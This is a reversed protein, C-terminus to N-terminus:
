RRVLQDLGAVRRVGGVARARRDLRELLEDLLVAVLDGRELHEVAGTGRAASAVRLDLLEGAAISRGGYWSSARAARPLGVLREVARAHAAGALAHQGVEDREDAERECSSSSSTAKGSRTRSRKSAHSSWCSFAPRSNVGSCSAHSSSSGRCSRSTARRRADVVEVVRREDLVAAEALRVLHEAVLEVGSSSSSFSTSTAHALRGGTHADAVDRDLNSLVCSPSSTDALAVSRRVRARIESCLVDAPRM